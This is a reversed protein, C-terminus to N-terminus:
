CRGETIAPPGPELRREPGAPAARVTVCRTAIGVQVTRSAVLEDGDPALTTGGGLAPVSGGMAEARYADVTEWTGLAVTLEGAVHRAEDDARAESFRTLGVAALAVVLAIVVLLSGRRRRTDLM